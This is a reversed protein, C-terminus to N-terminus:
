GPMGSKNYEIKKECDLLGVIWCYLRYCDLWVVKCGDLGEGIRWGQIKKQLGYRQKLKFVVLLSM